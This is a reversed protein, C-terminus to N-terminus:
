NNFFNVQQVRSFNMFNKDVETEKGEKSENLCENLRKNLDDFDLNIEDKKLAENETKNKDFKQCYFRRSFNSKTIIFKYITLQFKSYKSINNM